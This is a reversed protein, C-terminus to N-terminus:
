KVGFHLVMSMYSFKMNRYGAAKSVGRKGMTNNNVKTSLLVLSSRDRTNDFTAKTNLNLVFMM